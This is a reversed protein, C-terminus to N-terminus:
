QNLQRFNFTLIIGICMNPGFAQDSIKRLKSFARLSTFPKKPQAPITFFYIEDGWTNVTGEFPLAGLIKAATASTGLEADVSIDDISITIINDDM